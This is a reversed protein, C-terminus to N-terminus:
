LCFDSALVLSCLFSYHELNFTRDRWFGHRLAQETFRKQMSTSTKVDKPKYLKVNKQETSSSDNKPNATIKPTMLLRRKQIAKYSPLSSSFQKAMRLFYNGM